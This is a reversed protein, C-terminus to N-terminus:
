STNGFHRGHTRHRRWVCYCVTLLAVLFVIIVVGGGAGSAIIVTMKKDTIFCMCCNETVVHTYTFRM